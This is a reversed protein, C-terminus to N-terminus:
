FYERTSYWSVVRNTKQSITFYWVTHWANTIYSNPSAYATYYNTTQSNIRFGWGKTEWAARLIEYPMGKSVKGQLATDVYGKGYKQCLMNYTKKVEQEEAAKEKAVQEKAAQERAALDKKFNPTDQVENEVKQCIEILPLKYKNGSPCVLTADKLYEKVICDTPETNIGKYIFFWKLSEFLALGDNDGGMNSCYLKKNNPVLTYNRNNKYVINGDSDICAIFQTAGRYKMDIPVQKLDKAQQANMYEYILSSTDYVKLPGYGFVDLYVSNFCSSTKFVDDREPCCIKQIKGDMITITDPGILRYQYTLRILNDRERVDLRKYVYKKYDEYALELQAALMSDVVQRDYAIKALYQDRKKRISRLTSNLIEKEANNYKEYLEFPHTLSDRMDTYTGMEKLKLWYNSSYPNFGALNCVEDFLEEKNKKSFLDEKNKEVSYRELMRKAYEKFDPNQYREPRNLEATKISDEYAARAKERAAQQAAEEEAKKDYDAKLQPLITNEFKDENDFSELCFNYYKDVTEQSISSEPVGAKVIAAKIGAKDYKQAQANIGFLFVFAIVALATFINRKNM